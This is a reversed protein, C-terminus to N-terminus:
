PIISQEGEVSLIQSEDGSKKRGESRPFINTTLVTARSDRGQARLRKLEQPSGEKDVVQKKKPRHYIPRLRALDSRKSLSSFARLVMGYLTASHTLIKIFNRNGSGNM